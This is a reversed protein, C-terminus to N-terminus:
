SGNPGRLFEGMIQITRFEGIAFRVWGLSGQPQTAQNIHEFTGLSLNAGDFFEKTM